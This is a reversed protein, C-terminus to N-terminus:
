SCSSLIGVFVWVALRGAGAVAWAIAEFCWLLAELWAWREHFPKEQEALQQGNDEESSM